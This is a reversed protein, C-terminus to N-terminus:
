TFERRLGLNLSLPLCGHEHITTGNAACLDYNTREVCRPVLRRPGFGHRGPVATQQNQRNHLPPRHNYRLHISGITDAAETERSATPAPRLVTKRGLASAATTGASVPHPTAMPHLGEALGGTLEAM